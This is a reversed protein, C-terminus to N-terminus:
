KLIGLEKEEKRAEPTLVISMINVKGTDKFGLETRLERLFDDGDILMNFKGPTDQGEIMKEDLDLYAKIIKESGWNMLGKKFLIMEDKAKQSFGTKNKKSNFLLEFYANYFHEFVKQKERFIHLQYEREKANRNNITVTLVSTVAAFIVAVIGFISIRQQTDEIKFIGWLTLGILFVFLVTMWIILYVNRM